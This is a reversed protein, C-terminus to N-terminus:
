LSEQDSALSRYPSPQDCRLIAIKKQAQCFESCFPVVHALSKSWPLFSFVCCPFREAQPDASVVSDASSRRALLIRYFTSEPCLALPKRASQKQTESAVFGIVWRSGFSSWPCKHFSSKPDGATNGATDCPRKLGPAGGDGCAFLLWLSRPHTPSLCGDLRLGHAARCGLMLPSPPFPRPLRRWRQGTLGPKRPGRCTTGAPGLCPSLNEGRRRLHARSCTLSPGHPTLERLGSLPCPQTSCTLVLSAPTRTGDQGSCTHARSTTTVQLRLAPGPTWSEALGWAGLGVGFDSCQEQPGPTPLGPVLLAM